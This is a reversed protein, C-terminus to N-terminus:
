PNEGKIMVRGAVSLPRDFWTSLIPGGYVETNLKVYGETKIEANPKIRFGPSDTHAGILRFGDEEIEGSGIEFAIVASNNKEVYYKGGKQLNWKDSEKLQCFGNNNLTEKIEHVAQFATKSKNIFDLLQISNNM